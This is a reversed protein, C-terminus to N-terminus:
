SFSSEQDSDTMSHNGEFTSLPQADVLSEQRPLSLLAGMKLGALTPSCHNVLIADINM